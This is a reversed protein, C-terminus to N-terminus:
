GTAGVGGHEVVHHQSLRGVTHREDQLWIDHHIEPWRARGRLRLQM